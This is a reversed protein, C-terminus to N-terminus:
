EINYRSNDLDQEDLAAMINDSQQKEAKAKKKLKFKGNIKRLDKKLSKLIADRFSYVFFGLAGLLIILFFIAFFSAGRHTTVAISGTEKLKLTVAGDKVKETSKILKEGDFRYVNVKKGNNEANVPITVNVTKNFAETEELASAKLVINNASIITRKEGMEELLTDYGDMGETWPTVALQTNYYLKKGSVTIKASENYLTRELYVKKPLFFATVTVDSAPMIVSTSVESTNSLTGGSVKWGGFEYGNTVEAVLAASEGANYYKEGSVYAIGGEEANVEIAYADSAMCIATIESNNGIVGIETALATAPDVSILKGAEGDYFAWYILGTTRDFCMSQIYTGEFGTAGVKFARGSHTDIKYLMGTEGIGFLDGNGNFTLGKLQAAGIIHSQFVTTGTKVDLTFLANASNNNLDLCLLYMKNQTIDYAMEVPRYATTDEIATGIETRVFKQTDAKYLIGNEDVVYINGGFSTGCFIESQEGQKSIETLKAPSAPSFSVFAFPSGESDYNRFGYLTIDSSAANVSFPVCFLTLLVLLLAIIRKRM